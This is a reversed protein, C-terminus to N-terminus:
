CPTTVTLSVSFTLNTWICVNSGSVYFKRLGRESICATYEFVLCQNSAQKTGRTRIRMLIVLKTVQASLVTLQM